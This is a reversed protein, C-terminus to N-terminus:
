AASEAVSRAALMKRVAAFVNAVAPRRYVWKEDSTPPMVVMTANAEFFLIDGEQNVAFDIGGYDLGLAANIAHLAAIGRAGIVNAMDALFAADKGRNAASQAMDATFYHVKWSPSIALHLPFLKGDVFMVRFKRFAGMADRADLQEILWANAGPFDAVAAALERAVAVRVFHHGTHFGPARLLLPFSLGSRAVAEAAEPAALVDLPLRIMRPAVVNSLGRLREANALRGTKLVHLPHNIVPRGSRALMARAAELGEGCLDADGISNFVVDHPPLPAKPDCYETVLVTTKFTRDDLIADMPINGGAASVLLLVAIPRGEGRYPLATVAHGKFGADRHRRAGAADGTEALLNGMGRHAHIHGSDIRLAAEFHLRAQARDGLLLLLNGLNVHGSPNQPHHRVAEGFLSRAAERYGAKLVLTGFDNLAAFDTPRRRILELYDRKAPEFLGQERLLAAREFRAAIADPDRELVRDLEDIRSRPVSRHPRDIVIRPSRQPPPSDVGNRSSLLILGRGRRWILAFNVM